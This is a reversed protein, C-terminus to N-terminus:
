GNKKRVKIRFVAGNNRPNQVSMRNQSSTDPRSVRTNDNKEVLRASQRVKMIARRKRKIKAM